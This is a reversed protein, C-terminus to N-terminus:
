NHPSPDQLERTGRLSSKSPYSRGLPNIHLFESVFSLNDPGGLPDSAGVEM